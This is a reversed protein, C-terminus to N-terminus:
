FRLCSYWRVILHIFAGILRDVVLVISHIKAEQSFVINSHHEDLLEGSPARIGSFASARM